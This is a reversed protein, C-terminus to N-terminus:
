LLNIDCLSGILFVMNLLTQAHMHPFRPSAPLWSDSVVSTPHLLALADRICVCLHGDPVRVLSFLRVQSSYSKLIPFNSNRSSIKGCSGRIDKIVGALDMSLIEAGEAKRGDRRCGLGDIAQM